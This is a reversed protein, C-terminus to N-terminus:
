LPQEFAMDALCWVPKTDHTSKLLRPLQQAVCRETRSFYGNRSAKLRGRMECPSVQLMEALTGATISSYVLSSGPAIVVWSRPTFDHHCTRFSIADCYQAM